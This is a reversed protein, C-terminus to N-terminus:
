KVTVTFTATKKKYSVTIKATGKKLGKVLGDDTVSVVAPKNSKYSLCERSATAPKVDLYNKLDFYKYLGLTTSSKKLTIKTVAVTTWKAFLHTDATPKFSKPNKVAKKLAADTYWGAFKCGEKSMNNADPLYTTNGKKVTYTNFPQNYSSRGQLGGNMVLVIHYGTKEFVPYLTANKNFKYDWDLAKGKKTLSWGTNELTKDTNHISEYDISHDISHYNGNFVYFSGGNLASSYTTGKRVKVQLKTVYQGTVPDYISGDGGMLTLTVTKTTAAAAKKWVATYTVAKTITENYLSEVTKKTLSSKWGVFAYNEKSPIPLYLDADGLRQGKKVTFSPLYRRKDYSGFKGGALNLTVKVGKAWKAKLCTSKTFVHANPLVKAYVDEADYWGVFYYGDKRMESGDYGRKALMDGPEMYWYGSSSKSSSGAYYGGNADWLIYINGSDEPWSAYVTVNGTPVFSSDVPKTFKSDFYFDANKYRKNRAEFSGIKTGKQIYFSYSDVGSNEVYEGTARNTYNAGALNKVTVKYQKDLWKAYYTVNKSVVASRKVPKKLAKDSYWGGFVKGSLYPTVFANGASMGKGLGVKKTHAKSESTFDFWGKGANLTVTVNKIWKAYLTVNKAPKYEGNLVTGTNKKVTWGALTYGEKAFASSDPLWITNGKLVVSSQTKAGNSDVGGNGNLTVTYATEWYAYLTVKKTVEYEGTLVEGKNKKETWGTLLKGKKTAVSGGTALYFTEGAELTMGKKYNEVNYYANDGSAWTGGNVNFSIKYQTKVKEWKAYLTVDKKVLYRDTWVTGTGKKNETWGVLKYGKRTGGNEGTHLYISDGYGVSEDKVYESLKGGNKNFKVTYPYSWQAYLTVDGTPIYSDYNAGSYVRGSGDKAETWGVLTYSGNEIDNSYRNVYIEEGEATEEVKTKDGNTFKGGNPDFTVKLMKKWVAYLTTDKSPTFSDTYSASSADKSESWGVMKYGDKTAVYDGNLYMLEGVAGEEPEGYDESTFTGGNADFKVTCPKKWVAYLTINKTVIIPYEKETATKMTAWGVLKYGDRTAAYDGYLYASDGEYVVRDDGYGDNFAGGNADYKVTYPKKWVAYLTMDQSVSDLFSYYEAYAADATTAWGRMEYGARTAVTEGYDISKSSNGPVYITKGQGELFKGGNANFSVKYVSDSVQVNASRIFDKSEEDGPNMALVSVDATGTGVATLLGTSSVTFINENASEYVVVQDTSYGGSKDYEIELEIQMTTVGSLGINYLSDDEDYGEGTFSVSSIPNVSGAQGSVANEDLAIDQLEGAAEASESAAEMSEAETSEAEASEAESDEAMAATEEGAAEEQIVADGVEESAAEGEAEVEGDSEEAAGETSEESVADEPSEEAIAETDEGSEEAIAEEVEGSEETIAEEGEGSAGDESAEEAPLEGSEEANADETSEDTLTEEGADSAGDESTDEAPLEESEGDLTEEGTLAEESEDNQGDAEEPLGAGDAADIAGADAAEGAAEGSVDAQGEGTEEESEVSEPADGTEDGPLAEASEDNVLADAETSETEADNLADDGADDPNEAEGAADNGDESYLSEDAVDGESDLADETGDASADNSENGAANEPDSTEDTAEVTEGDTTEGSIESEADENEEPAVEDGADGGEEMPNATNEEGENEADEAAEQESGEDLADEGEEFSEESFEEAEELLGLKEDPEGETQEEMDVAESASGQAFASSANSLMMSASLALAALRALKKKWLKRKLM